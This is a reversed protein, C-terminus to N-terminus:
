DMGGSMAVPLFRTSSLKLNESRFVLGDQGTDADKHVVFRRLPAPQFCAARTSAPATGVLLPGPRNVSAGAAHPCIFVRTGFCLSSRTEEATHFGM